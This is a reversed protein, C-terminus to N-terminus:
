RTPKKAAGPKEENVPKIKLTGAQILSLQQGETLALVVVDGPKGWVCRDSLVVYERDEPPDLDRRKAAPAARHLYSM